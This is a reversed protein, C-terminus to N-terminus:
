AGRIFSRLVDLQRKPGPGLKGPKEKMLSDYVDLILNKLNDFAEQENEGSTEINADYFSATFMGSDGEELTVRIPAKLEYAEPAFTQISAETTKQTAELRDLREALSAIQGELRHVQLAQKLRTAVIAPLQDLTLATDLSTAEVGAEQHGLFTPLGYENQPRVAWSSHPSFQHPGVQFPVDWDRQPKTM